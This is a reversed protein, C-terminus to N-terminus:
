SSYINNIYGDNRSQILTFRSTLNKTIPLNLVTSLNVGNFSEMTLSHRFERSSNPNNSITNILGAMSNPGYISSQPGKFIEIQKIDNLLGLM